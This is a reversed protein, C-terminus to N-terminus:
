IECLNCHQETPSASVTGRLPRHPLASASVSHRLRNRSFLPFASSQNRFPQLTARHALGVRNRPAPPAPTGFPVGLPAAPQALVASVGIVSKPFTATNSPPRPRCPEASRATRSHRLPCRAACGAARSCRFRRHSIESLNCHQETPSASVTGRLPRHPLASASV